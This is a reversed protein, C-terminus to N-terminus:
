VIAEKTSADLLTSNRTPTPTHHRTTATSASSSRHKEALADIPERFAHVDHSRASPVFRIPRESELAAELIAPTPTIGVGGSILILPREGKSLTFAGSPPFLEVTRGEHVKDHVYNSVVGGPKRKVGIRYSLGKPAASLSYSRRAEQGNM